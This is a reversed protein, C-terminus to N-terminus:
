WYGLMVYPMEEFWTYIDDSLVFQSLRVGSLVNDTYIYCTVTNRSCCNNDILVVLSSKIRVLFKNSFEDEQIDLFKRAFQLLFIWHQLKGVKNKKKKRLTIKRKAFYRYLDDIFKRCITPVSVYVLSFFYEWFVLICDRAITILIQFYIIKDVCTTIGCM